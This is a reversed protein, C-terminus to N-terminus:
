VVVVARGHLDVAMSGDCGFASHNTRTHTTGVPGRRDTVAILDEVPGLNRNSEAGHQNSALEDLCLCFSLYHTTGFNAHNIGSPALGQEGKQRFLSGVQEFENSGDAYLFNPTVGVVSSSM